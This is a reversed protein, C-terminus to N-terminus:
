DLTRYRIVWTKVGKDTIRPCLGPSRPDSLELREGPKAWAAQAAKETLAKVVPQSM